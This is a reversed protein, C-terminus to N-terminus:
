MATIMGSISISVGNVKRRKKKIKHSGYHAAKQKIAVKSM